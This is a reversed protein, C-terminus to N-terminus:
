RLLIYRLLLDVIQSRTELFDYRCPLGGNSGSKGLLLSRKAGPSSPLSPGRWVCSPRHFVGQGIILEWNRFVYGSAQYFSSWLMMPWVGVCSSIEFAIGWCLVHCQPDDHDASNACGSRIDIEDKPVVTIIKQSFELSKNNWKILCSSSMPPVVELLLSVCVSTRVLRRRCSPLSTGEVIIISSFM